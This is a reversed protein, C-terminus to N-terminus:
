TFLELSLYLFVPYVMSDTSCSKGLSLKDSALYVPHGLDWKKINKNIRKNPLKLTTKKRINENPTLVQHLTVLYLTKLIKIRLLQKKVSQSTKVRSVFVICFRDLFICFRDLFSGFVVCFRCQFSGFVIQFHDLFSLFFSGFVICFSKCSQQGLIDHHFNIIDMLLKESNLFLKISIFGLYLRRGNYEFNM